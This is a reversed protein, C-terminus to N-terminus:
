QCGELFVVMMYYMVMIVLVSKKKKEKKTYIFTPLLFLGHVQNESRIINLCLIILKDVSINSLKSLMTFLKPNCHRM